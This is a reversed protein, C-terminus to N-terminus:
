GKSACKYIKAPWKRKHAFYKRKFVKISLMLVSGALAPMILNMFWISISTLLIGLNNAAFIGILQLSIEGRVGLEVLTISPIVALALFM